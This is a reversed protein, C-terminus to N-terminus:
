TKIDSYRGESICWEFVAQLNEWEIELYEYSLHWEKLDQDAFSESFKLYWNVWRQRLEQAFEPNTTLEAWAYERTLAALCYRGQQQYIM